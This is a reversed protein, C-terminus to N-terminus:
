ARHLKGAVPTYCAARRQVRIVARIGAAGYSQEMLAAAPIISLRFSASNDYDPRVLLACPAVKGDGFPSCTKRAQPSSRITSYSEPRTRVPLPSELFTKKM